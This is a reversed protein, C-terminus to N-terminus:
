RLLVTETIQEGRHVHYLNGQPHIWLGEDKPVPIEEAKRVTIFGPEEVGPLLKGIHIHVHCQTVARPGNVALAWRDGWLSKAKEIAGTWLAAREEPSMAGLTYEHTRPLALWRNPKTPNADKLFFVQVNAPQKEAERCLSCEHAQLTEPRAPDCHCTVVNAQIAGAALLVAAVILARM